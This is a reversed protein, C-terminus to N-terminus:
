DGKKFLGILSGLGAIGAGAYSTIESFKDWFGGGGSDQQQPMYGAWADGGWNRYSGDFFNQVIVTNSKQPRPLNWQGTIINNTNFRKPEIPPM